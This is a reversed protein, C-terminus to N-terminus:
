NGRAVRLARTAAFLAFPGVLVAGCVLTRFGPILEPILEASYREAGLVAIALAAAVLGYGIEPRVSALELRELQIVAVVYGALTGLALGLILGAVGALQFGLVCGIGTVLTAVGSSIAWIRADGYAFLTSCATVQLYGFWLRLAGLQAIWGADAYRSDYLNGFFVPAVVVSALTAVVATPLTVRRTAAYARPIGAGGPRNAESLAPILVSGSVQGLLERLMNPVTMGIMYVGLEGLPALRGLIAVDLQAALFSLGSSALVWKGFSLLERAAGRDWAFRDRRGPLWTHSLLSRTAQNVLGGVVLAWVSHFIFALAIATAITAVQAILEIAVRRGLELRRYLLAMKMSGLSGLVLSLLAVPLLSALQPEKYFAAILPSLASVGVWVILGRGVQITWATDLFNPDDGREHRIVTSHTGFNVIQEIAILVLSVLAMLGFAEPFLLRSLVLNSVMRLLQGALQGGLTFITGRTARERLSRAVSAIAPTPAAETLDSM